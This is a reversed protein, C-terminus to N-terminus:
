ATPKVLFYGMMELHLASCFDTCYFPFTGAADAVFSITETRSPELSLNVNYLPLAFGHIANRTKEVNTIHWVIHDGQNVEITDPTFHSRVSTMFIEIKNGNREIREKGLVTGNPDKSQTAANWGIEPYVEWAKIRDRKIIQAYHPESNGIAMDYLVRFKHDPGIDMLQLNKPYLPGVTAFRDVSWKNLAVLFGGGPKATDGEVAALHGINYQVPVKEILKWGDNRYPPGLSWRAVASDLFLSTYALGQDDFQTHLPGLGLEVQAEICDKFPLVPVGYPDVDGKGASIAKMIKDFSYITVHPDLKGAVVMYDGKPTVDVGHPSKPEPIFHLIGEEVAVPLRIVRLGKMVEFKGAAVVQEAKKWNVVHLYDMDRQSAGMELPPKGELDGGTALETNFSNWFAWGDSAFKGADALDQGYPPVEIAFSEEPVLRGKTRDFKWMTLLGRYKEKFESIPAYEWGLPTGYQSGEMVYETNPTVFTGGHNSLILPNKVIQKTAFDRLDIVALRSNAKDNIFLWQGDYEGNTESLAPHHTDGWTISRDGVNGGALTAKSDDSFGYGQWPEPTFVAIVRLLRMSPLGIVLAQGSQGGSAFMLYDDIRGSPQYATLAATVDDPTLKRQAIIDQASSPVGGSLPSAPANKTEVARGCSSLIAAGAPLALAAGIGGLYSRRKVRKGILRNAGNDSGDDM